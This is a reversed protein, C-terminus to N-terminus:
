HLEGYASPFYFNASQNMISKVLKKAFEIMCNYNHETKFLYRNFM